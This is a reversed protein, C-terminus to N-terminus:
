RASRREVQELLEDMEDWFAPYDAAIEALMQAASPDPDSGIRRLRRAIQEAQERPWGWNVGRGEGKRGYRKPKPVIGMVQLRRFQGPGLSVGVRSLKAVLEERTVYDRARDEGV